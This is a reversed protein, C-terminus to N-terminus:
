HVFFQQLHLWPENIPIMHALPRCITNPTTNYACSSRCCHMLFHSTMHHTPLSAILYCWQTMSSTKKGSTIVFDISTSPSTTLHENLLAKTSDCLSIENKFWLFSFWMNWDKLSIQFEKVISTPISTIKLHHSPLSVRL